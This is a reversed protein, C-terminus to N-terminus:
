SSCSLFYSHYDKWIPEADSAKCKRLYKFIKTLKERDLEYEFVADPDDPGVGVIEKIVGMHQEPIPFEGTVFDEAGFRTIFHRM